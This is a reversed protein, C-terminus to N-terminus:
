LHDLSTFLNRMTVNETPILLLSSVTCKIESVNSIENEVQKIEGLEVKWVWKGKGLCENEGRLEQKSDGM